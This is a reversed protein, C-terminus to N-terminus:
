LARANLLDASLEPKSLVADSLLSVEAGLVHEAVVAFDAMDLADRDPDVRGILRDPSAFRLDYIGHEAALAVLERAHARVLREDASIPEPALAGM